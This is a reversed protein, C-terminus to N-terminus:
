NVNENWNCKVSAVTRIKNVANTEDGNQPVKVIIKPTEILVWLYEYSKNIKKEFKFVSCSKM